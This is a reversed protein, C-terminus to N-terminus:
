LPLAPDPAPNINLGSDADEREVRAVTALADAICFRCPMLLASPRDGMFGGCVIGRCGTFIFVIVAKEANELIEGM